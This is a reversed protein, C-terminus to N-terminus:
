ELERDRFYEGYGNLIFGEQLKIKKPFDIAKSHKYWRHHKLGGNQNWEKYEGEILGNKFWCHSKLQGNEYWEKYEDFFQFDKIHCVYAILGNKYYKLCEGDDYLEQYESDLLLAKALKDIEIQM